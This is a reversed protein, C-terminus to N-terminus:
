AIARAAAEVAHWLSAAMSRPGLLTVTGSGEEHLLFTGIHEVLCRRALSQQNGRLDVACLREFLGPLDSGQVDFRAWGGTQETVSASRGVAAVVIGAIDEHTELPAELMWQGQASAFLRFDGAKTLGSPPPLALGFSAALAGALETEGGVRVAISALARDTIECLTVGGIAGHAPGDRGLPTVPRPKFLEAM